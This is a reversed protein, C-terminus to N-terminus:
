ARFSADDPRVVCSEPFYLLVSYISITLFGEYQLSFLQEKVICGAKCQVSRSRYRDRGAIFGAHLNVM